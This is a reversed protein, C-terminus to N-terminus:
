GTPGWQRYWLQFVMLTWLKKRNDRVGDEHEKKLRAIVTPDFFGHAQLAKHSLLEDSLPKLEHQLWRGIPIGFGKKKRYVIERPLKDEMLKKLIYKGVGRKYKYDYPLSQAFEVVTHDLFPSRVELGHAMSARDVNVLVEDMLYTRAYSWLLDNLFEERTEGEHFYTDLLAYPSREATVSGRPQIFVESVEKDNFAGLWHQHRYRNDAEAGELFRKLKFDFSFYSHRV